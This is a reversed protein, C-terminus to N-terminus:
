NISNRIHYILEEDLLDCPAKDGDFNYTEFDIFWFQMRNVLRANDPESYSYDPQICYSFEMYGNTLETDVHGNYQDGMNFVGDFYDDAVIRALRTYDQDTIHITPPIANM